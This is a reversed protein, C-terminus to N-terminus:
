ADTDTLIRSTIQQLFVDACRFDRANAIQSGTVARWQRHLAARQGFGFGKAVTALAIAGDIVAPYAHVVRAAALLSTASHMGVRILWRDVSRRTMACYGALQKPTEVARPVLVARGVHLAIRPPLQNLRPVLTRLLRITLADALRHDATLSDISPRPELSCPPAVVLPEAGHRVLRLLCRIKAPDEPFVVAVPCASAATSRILTDEDGPAIRDLDILLLDVTGSALREQLCGVIPPRLCEFRAPSPLRSRVKALSELSGIAIIHM